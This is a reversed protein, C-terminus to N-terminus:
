HKAETLYASSSTTCGKGNRGTRDRWQQLESIDTNMSKLDKKINDAWAKQQRGRNRKSQYQM